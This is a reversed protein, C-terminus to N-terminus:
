AQILVNYEYGERPKYHNIMKRNAEKRYLDNYLWIVDKKRSLTLFRGCRM